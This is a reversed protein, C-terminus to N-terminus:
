GNNSGAKGNAQGTPRSYSQISTLSASDDIISNLTHVLRVYQTHDNVRRSSSGEVAQGTPQIKPGATTLARLLLQQGSGNQTTKDVSNQSSSIPLLRGGEEECTKEKQKTPGLRLFVIRTSVCSFFISINTRGSSADEDKPHLTPKASQSRHIGNSIAPITESNQAIQHPCGSLM